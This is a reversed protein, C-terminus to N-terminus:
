EKLRAPGREGLERALPALAALPGQVHGGARL